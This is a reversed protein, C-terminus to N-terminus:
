AASRDPGASSRRRIDDGLDRPRTAALLEGLARDDTEALHLVAARLGRFCLRRWHVPEVSAVVVAAGLAEAAIDEDSREASVGLEARLGNSWLLQRKGKSVGEWEHWLRRDREYGDRDASEIGGDVAVLRQLIGFPTSNGRKAQKGHPGTADHATSEVSKVSYVGKAFYGGLETGDVVLRVDLGHAKTPRYRRDVGTVATQWRGFMREGLAQADREYIAPEDGAQDARARALLSWMPDLFVLAHVHVHWGNATGHTAELLRIYGRVGYEGRDDAWAARSGSTAARWGIGVADWLSALKHRSGRHRLTLTIFAVRWGRRNAERLAQDVEGQRSAQIKEACDPCAWTSGCTQVGSVGAVFGDPTATRVIDVTGAGGDRPAARLGCSRVRRLSSDRWLWSKAANREARRAQRTKNGRRPKHQM